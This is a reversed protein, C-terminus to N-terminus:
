KLNLGEWRRGMSTMNIFCKHDRNDGLSGHVRGWTILGLIRITLVVAVM